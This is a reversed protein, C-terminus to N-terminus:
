VRILLRDMAWAEYTPYNITQSICMLDLWMATPPNANLQRLELREIYTGSSSLRMRVVERDPGIGSRQNRVNSIQPVNLRGATKREERKRDNGIM